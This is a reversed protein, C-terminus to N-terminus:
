KCKAEAMLWAEIASASLVSAMNGGRHAASHLFGVLVSADGTSYTLIKQRNADDDNATLLMKSIAAHCGAGSCTANVPTAINTQYATLQSGAPCDGGEGEAPTEGAVPVYEYPKYDSKYLGCAILMLCLIIASAASFINM